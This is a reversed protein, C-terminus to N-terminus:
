AQPGYGFKGHGGLYLQRSQRRLIGCSSCHVQFECSPLEHSDDSRVQGVHDGVDPLKDLGIM